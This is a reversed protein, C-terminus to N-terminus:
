IKASCLSCIQREHALKNLLSMHSFLGKGWPQKKGLVMVKEPNQFTGHKQIGICISAHKSEAIVGADVKVRVQMRLKSSRWKSKQGEPKM